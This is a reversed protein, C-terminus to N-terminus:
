SNVVRFAYAQILTNKKFVVKWLFIFFEIIDNIYITHTIVHSCTQSFHSGPHQGVLTKTRSNEYTAHIPNFLFIGQEPLM